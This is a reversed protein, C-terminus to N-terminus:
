NQLGMWEELLLLYNVNMVVSGTAQGSWEADFQIPTTLRAPSPNERWNLGSVLKMYNIAGGSEEHRCLGFLM